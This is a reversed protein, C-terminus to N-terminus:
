TAIYRCECIWILILCYQRTHQVERPTATGHLHLTISNNPASLWLHPLRWSSNVQDIMTLLGLILVAVQIQTAEEGIHGSGSRQKHPLLQRWGDVADAEYEPLGLRM